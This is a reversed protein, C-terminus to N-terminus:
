PPLGARRLADALQAADDPNRFPEKSMFRASSFEPKLAVCDAAERRARDSDGLRAHCAARLAAVRYQRVPIRDFMALAESDRRLVMYAQGLSRWYWPPDFYPDIERARRFWDLAEEAQGLYVLMLGMDAINWQNNPNLEIARRAYQLTLDYARRQLCVQALISFCTSEHEDLEVARQALAYAQQLLADAAAPDRQEDYWQGARMAALMAYALGYGPDVEIAKEFLRTAEAVGAPDSWPLINGRLVYEYAAQSAAPKRRAREADVVRVRGVLTSVITRVVQDQVAFIEALDCDYKEAWIHAGTGTDILQATIRIREGMRRVSGEVIFRVQLERAVQQVDVAADRYRFSATRSRVALLRWRSLETIIDETIGDGLSAQEPDGGLNAFPLVCIDVREPMGVPVPPLEALAPAPRDAAAVASSPPVPPAPAAPRVILAALARLMDQLPPGAAHVDADELDITHLARVDLPLTAGDFRVPVLIGREAAERAEGRVWRSAVSDASWVVLVARAQALQADILRDFEQGPAIEPDWWVSWGRAEIAAVLPAVRARDRRSYSVFVDAM